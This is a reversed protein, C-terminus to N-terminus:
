SPCVITVLKIVCRFLCQHDHDSATSVYIEYFKYDCTLQIEGHFKM